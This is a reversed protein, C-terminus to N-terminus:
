RLAVILTAGGRRVSLLVTGAGRLAARLEALSTVTSRSTAGLVSFIVDGARLGAAAAASGPAVAGLLAGAKGPADGLTAGTLAHHPPADAGGEAGAKAGPETAGASQADAIVAAVKRPQGDRMLGIEVRDGVRMLAIANRLETHSKVAQGNVQTIVDGARVGAKAAASAEVVQTVLAGTAASLGLAQAIDPTVPAINVGLLGRKVSGFRILQDMISRVMDVPIAFGIGINGGSQSLIASNIGVLDGRLDVLAGGSNGPNISADTQIFNEFGDPNIGSRGLGSVIGSTVTHQLGFPNGIAVVFDGVELRSSDGLGIQTLTEPKVKLVAIDTREDSGVVEAKLDRGDMLTVTIESANAVVHANTVIYGRTADVIVGSGASQFQRERQGQDPPTDFFRRFFPDDLLPNRQGREKVTGRTGINVVAPSIRRIMPALSPMPMAALAPPASRLAAADQAQLAPAAAALLLFLTGCAARAPRTM